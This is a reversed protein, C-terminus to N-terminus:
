PQLLTSRVDIGTLRRKFLTPDEFYFVPGSTFAVLNATISCNQDTIIMEFRVGGSTYAQLLCKLTTEYKYIGSISEAM